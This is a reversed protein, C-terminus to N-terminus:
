FEMEEWLKEIEGTETESLVCLEGWDKDRFIETNFNPLTKNYIIKEIKNEEYDKIYKKVTYPSINISNAIAKCSKGNEYLNNIKVIMSNTIVKM